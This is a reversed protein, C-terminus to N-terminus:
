KAEAKEKKAEGRIKAKEEPSASKYKKFAEKIKERQEPTFEMWKKYREMMTEKMQPSLKEWETYSKRLKKKDEDSLTEFKKGGNDLYDKVGQSVDNIKLYASRADEKEKEAMQDWKKEPKVPTIKEPTSSAAAASGEGALFASICCTFVFILLLSFLKRM